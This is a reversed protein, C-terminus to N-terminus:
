LFLSIVNTFNLTDLANFPNNMLEMSMDFYKKLEIFSYVDTKLFTCDLKKLANVM